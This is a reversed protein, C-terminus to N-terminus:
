KVKVRLFYPTNEKLLSISKLYKIRGKVEWM